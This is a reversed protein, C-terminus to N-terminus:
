IVQQMVYSAINILLLSELFPMEVYEIVTRNPSKYIFEDISSETTAQSSTYSTVNHEM